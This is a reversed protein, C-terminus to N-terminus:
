VGGSMALMSRANSHSAGRRGQESIGGTERTRLHGGDGKKKRPCNKLKAKVRAISEIMSGLMKGVNWRTGELKHRLLEIGM